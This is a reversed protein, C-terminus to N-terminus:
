TAAEFTVSGDRAVRWARIPNFHYDTGPGRVVRLQTMTPQVYGQDDVARSMLVSENGTWRWMYQFRVHAKTHIPPQLEAQVWQKGGDVSVDVRSIRGRGSWALGTVPWWGPAALREPYAPSTIISKADMEFSFWRIKGGPLPDTYKATEWRTMFPATGLKLRRLWKVNTNGEWGPLLLRIPFGQEPRLPEGNQAYVVLADDMVKSMPISRALLSADGGEALMWSASSKIGAERLLVALPVGTWESNSTMGDVQQPTMEPKPTRYAARGNGSCEVFHVRTVAPFRMIDDVRFEMPRDVLGHVLLTHKAPDITPIGNHIRTFHLDAPTITGRLFQLPTSATGTIEGTPARELHVFPSRQGVPTTPAGSVKTPDAPVAPLPTHAAAQQADAPLKGLLVGGAAVAAGALLHRRSITSDTMAVEAKPFTYSNGFQLM